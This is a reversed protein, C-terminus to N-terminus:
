VWARPIEGVAFEVFLPFVAFQHPHDFIAARARTHHRQNGGGDAFLFGPFDNRVLPAKALILIPYRYDQAFGRRIIGVPTKKLFIMFRGESPFMARQCGKLGKVLSLDLSQVPWQLRVTIQLPSRM